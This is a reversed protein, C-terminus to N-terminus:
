VAWHGDTQGDTRRVWVTEEPRVAATTEMSNLVVSIAFSADVLVCDYVASEAGPAAVQPTVKLV